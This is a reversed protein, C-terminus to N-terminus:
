LLRASVTLQVTDWDDTDTVNKRDEISKKLGNKLDEGIFKEIQLYFLLIQYMKKECISQKWIAVFRKKGTERVHASHLCRGTRGANSHVVTHLVLCFM